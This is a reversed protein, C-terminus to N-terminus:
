QIGFAIVGGAEFAGAFWRASTTPDIEHRETSM